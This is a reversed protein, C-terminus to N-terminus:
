EFRKVDSFARKKKSPYILSLFVEVNIRLGIPKDKIRKGQCM